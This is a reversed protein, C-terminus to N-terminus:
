VGEAGRHGDRAIGGADFRHGGYGFGADRAARLAGGRHIPDFGGGGFDKELALRYPHKRDKLAKLTQEVITNTPALWLVLSREQRLLERTAIGVAHAALVTKGGGTPVRLCVYPLGPLKPVAHYERRAIEIFATRPADNSNLAAVRKFYATLTELCEEQYPKLTFL